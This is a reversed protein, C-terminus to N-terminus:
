KCREKKKRVSDFEQEIREWTDIVAEKLEKELGQEEVMAISDDMSQALKRERIAYMTTKNNTKLFQLNTRIDDVGYDFLICIPATRYPKWVSSKYVEITTQVGIVRTQEVGKITIKKKLKQVNYCRLRLSSYFPIAEGGPTCYKQSFPGADINQRIQNSCVMLYNKHTFIRCTKRLEESFEKARRTGMKDGSDGLELDTSLATLSDAFIGNVVESNKPKWKRIADFVEPVRDPNSYEIDDTNLDFMRAFQKNLRAEPDNFLIEGQQRQVAGAIECLLVTKGSGSPGFIEVLIGAPIGGGRVRGGSIALDLLTSGTSIIAKSNGVYDMKKSSTVEKARQKMITQLDKTRKM